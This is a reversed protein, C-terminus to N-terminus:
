WSRSSIVTYARMRPYYPEIRGCALAPIGRMSCRRKALCSRRRIVSASRRGHRCRRACRRASALEPALLRDTAAHDIEDVEAGSDDDSASPPWCLSDALSRSRSAQSAGHAKAYQTESRRCGAACRGRERTMMSASRADLGRGRDRERLSPLFAASAAEFGREGRPLPTSPPPRFAGRGARTANIQRLAAQGSM